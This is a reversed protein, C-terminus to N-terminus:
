NGGSNGVSSHLGFESVTRESARDRVSDGPQLVGLGAARAGEARLMREQKVNFDNVTEALMAKRQDDYYRDRKRALDEPMSALVMNGVKRENGQGDKEPQWGRFGDRTVVRGSLLHFRKGAREAAPIENICAQIPDQAEWPMTVPADAVRDLTKDWESGGHVAETYATKIEGSEIKAKREALAQDTFEWGLLHQIAVPVPKGNITWESKPPRTDAKGMAELELRYQDTMSYPLAGLLHDAVPEGNITLIEDMSVDSCMIEQNPESTANLVAAQLDSVSQEERAAKKQRAEAKRKREANVKEFGM